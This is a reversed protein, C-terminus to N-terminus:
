CTYCEDQASVFIRGTIIRLGELSLRSSNVVDAGLQGCEAAFRPTADEAFCIIQVSSAWKRILGLKELSAARHKASVKIFVADILSNRLTHEMSSDNRVYFLNLSRDPLVDEILQRLLPCETCILINM